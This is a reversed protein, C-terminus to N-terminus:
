RNYFLLYEFIMEIFDANLVPTQANNFQVSYYGDKTYVISVSVIVSSQNEKPHKDFVLLGLTSLKYTISCDPFILTKDGIQVQEIGESALEDNIKQIVDNILTEIEELNFHEEKQKQAYRKVWSDM